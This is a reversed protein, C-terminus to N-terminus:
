RWPEWPATCPSKDRPRCTSPLSQGSTREDNSAYAEVGDNASEDLWPLAGANAGAVFGGAVFGGALQLFYKPVFRAFARVLGQLVSILEGDASSWARSPAPAPLPPPSPPAAPSAPENLRVAISSGMTSAVM